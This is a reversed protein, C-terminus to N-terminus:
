ITRKFQGELTSVWGLLDEYRLNEKILRNRNKDSMLLSVAEKARFVRAVCKEIVLKNEFRNWLAFEITEGKKTNGIIFIPLQQFVGINILSERTHRM